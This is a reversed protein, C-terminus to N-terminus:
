RVLAVTRLFSAHESIAPASTHFRGATPVIVGTVEVSDGTDRTEQVFFGVLNRVVVSFSGSTLPQRAFADPDVIAITILRPSVNFASNVIGGRGADWTAGPDADILAYLPRRTYFDRHPFFTTATDGVSMPLGSCSGLNAEYRISDQPDGGPRPLDLAFMSDARFPGTSVHPHYITRVIQRGALDITLGTGPASASPPTYDDVVGPLLRGTADYKDYVDDERWVSDRPTTLDQLDNWRDVLALPRPCQTANGLLVKASASAAVEAANVGLLRSFFVPLPTGSSVGRQLAVRLCEGPVSPAGAPCTGTEMQISPTAIPQGWIQHEQLIAQAAARAADTDTPNVYALAVGGALAAADAANQAQGRAIWLTGLDISLASFALLGLMAVSVHVLVAGRENGRRARRARGPLSVGNTAAAVLRSVVHSPIM